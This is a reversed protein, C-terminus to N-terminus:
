HAQPADKQGDRNFGALSEKSMNDLEVRYQGFKSIAEAFAGREQRLEEAHSAIVTQRDRSGFLMRAIRGIM